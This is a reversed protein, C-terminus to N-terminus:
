RARRSWSLFERLSGSVTEIDGGDHYRLRVPGDGDPDDSLEVFYPDGFENFAFSFTGPPISELEPELAAHDAPVFENIYWGLEDDSANPPMLYFDGAIILERNAYLERLVAPVPRKLGAEIADWQPNELRRRYEAREAAAREAAGADWGFLRGFFGM